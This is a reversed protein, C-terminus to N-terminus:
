IESNILSSEAIASIENSELNLYKLFILNEFTNENIQKLRNEELNLDILSNPLLNEYSDADVLSEILNFGLDLKLVNMQTLNPAYSLRNRSLILEQLKSLKSLVNGLRTAEMDNLYNNKLNLSLLSNEIPYFTNSNLYTLKNVSLDLVILRTIDRFTDPSLKYILNTSLDIKHVDLGAFRDDPVMELRNDNIEITINHSYTKGIQRKPFMTLYSDASNDAPCRIKDKICSCGLFICGTGLTGVVLNSIIILALLYYFVLIYKIM